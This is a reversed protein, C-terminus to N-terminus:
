QCALRRRQHTHAEAITSSELKSDKLLVACYNAFCFALILFPWSRFRSLLETLAAPELQWSTAPSSEIIKSGLPTADAPVAFVRTM